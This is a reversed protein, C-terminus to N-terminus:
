SFWLHSIHVVKQGSNSGYVLSHFNGVEGDDGIDNLHGRMVLYEIRHSRGSVHKRTIYSECTLPVSSLHQKSLGSM